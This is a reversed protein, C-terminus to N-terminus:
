EGKINYARLPESCCASKAGILKRKLRYRYWRYGCGSCEIVFNPKATSVNGGEYDCAEPKAGLEMAKIQWEYGHSKVQPGVLAHAIEHLIVDRIEHMSTEKIFHISYGIEKERYRCQGIRRKSSDLQFTWDNLGYQRLLRHALATVESIKEIM